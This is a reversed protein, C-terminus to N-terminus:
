PKTAYVKIAMGYNKRLVLHFFVALRDLMKKTPLVQSLDMETKIIKFGAKILMANMTKESFHFLHVERDNISFLRLRRRRVLLYLVQMIYDHLNPVAVVLLGNSKLSRLAKQLNRFPNPVHELCHWFTIVDFYAEPLSIEGLEGYWVTIGLQKTYESSYRSIETGYAEFGNDRAVLLFTGIGCGVDLLKGGSKYQTLEKVRKEWMAIRKTLQADRWEKYYQEDYHDSRVDPQPDVYVLGCNKCKVVNYPYEAKQCVVTDKKNCLNCAIHRPM